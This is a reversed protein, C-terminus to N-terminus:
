PQSSQPVPFYDHYYRIPAPISGTRTSLLHSSRFPFLVDVLVKVVPPLPDPTTVRKPYKHDFCTSLSLVTGPLTLRDNPCRWSSVFTANM